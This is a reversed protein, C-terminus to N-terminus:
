AGALEKVKAKLPRYVHENMVAIAGIDSQDQVIAAYAETGARCYDVAAQTQGLAEGRDGASDALAANRLSEICDLYAIGFDLRGTWYEIYEGGGSGAKSKAKRAFNLANVYAQRVESLERPFPEAVWSKMIMNPAPFAITFANQELIVTARQVEQHMEFMDEVCAEGCAARLVYRCVEDPSAATDWGAKALYSVTPDHDGILWYRTSFGSWGRDRIRKTMRHLSGLTSQPLIGVNDDHLTLIATAPLDLQPAKGYSDQLASSSPFYDMGVHTQWGPKAIVNVVPFLERAVSELIVKIDPRATDALVDLDAILRDLFYLSVIDGKVELVPRPEGGPYSGAPMDREAASALVSELSCVKELGYKEDLAQWARDHEEIWQRHEQMVFSIYSAESYINVTAQIVATALDALADDDMAVGDGPVITSTGLQHTERSNKLLGAFESPFETTSAHIVCEMGRSAAYGFLSHIHRQGAAAIEEYSAGVPLDPNWFENVEGFVERGVTDDDVPYRDGFWLTGSSRKVGRVEYHVFPHYPWIFAYVRNFKLKALQDVVPRYDEIGWSEPGCAFDNVVRWQRITLNPEMVTTMDPLKFARREPLIDGHLLYRVGWREVLEYVAWLTARPSGGGVVLADGGHSQCRQIVIGQDSVDFSLGNDMAEAVAPNTAPSGILFLGGPFGETYESPSTEVGFLDGLYRCLESAAFLELDPQSGSVVVGVKPDQGGSEAM